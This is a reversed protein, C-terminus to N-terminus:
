DFALYFLAARKSAIHNSTQECIDQSGITQVNLRKSRQMLKLIEVSLILLFEIREHAAMEVPLSRQEGKRKRDISRKVALPSSTRNYRRSGRELQDTSGIMRECSLIAFKMWPCKRPYVDIM